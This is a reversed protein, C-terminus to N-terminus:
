PIFFFVIFTATIRSKFNKRLRLYRSTTKQTTIYYQRTPTVLTEYSRVLDM